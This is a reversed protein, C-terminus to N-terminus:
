NSRVVAIRSRDVETKLAYLQTDSSQPQTNLKLQQFKLKKM